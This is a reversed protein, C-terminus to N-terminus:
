KGAGVLLMEDPRDAGSWLEAGLKGACAEIAALVPIVREKACEPHLLTLKLAALGRYVTKGIVAIRDNWLRGPLQRNVENILADPLSQGAPRWRFLVINTEPRVLLELETSKEIEEAAFQAQALMLDLLEGVRERGLARLSMFVKLADFRRTTQLSKGVLNPGLSDAKDSPSLYAISRDLISLTARRRVMFVGCSISQFLLKHFDISVSDTLEVGRLLPAHDSLLLAGAAAADLHVWVNAGHAVRTCEEIRDISGCETTGATLVLAIPRHGGNAESRIARDLRDASLKGDREAEIPVVASEGLGLIHASRAVSFHALESCLIRWGRAEAPLGSIRVTNQESAQAHDRALMLGMLNAQTGGSTFVGDGAAGFGVLDSLWRVVHCELATASPGQDFSDLSQNSASILFEAVLSPLIPASHMHAVYHPHSVSVFHPMIRERVELMVADLGRGAAPCVDLSALLHKLQDFKIGSTPASQEDWSEMVHDIVREMAYVFAARTSENTAPFLGLHHAEGTTGPM